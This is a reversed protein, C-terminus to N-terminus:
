LTALEPAGEVPRRKRGGGSERSNLLIGSEVPRYFRTVVPNDPLELPARNEHSKKVLYLFYFPRFCM